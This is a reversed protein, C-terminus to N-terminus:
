RKLMSGVAAPRYDAASGPAGRLLGCVLRRATECAAFGDPLM